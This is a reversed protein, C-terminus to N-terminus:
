QTGETAIPSVSTYVDKLVENTSKTLNKSSSAKIEVFSDKSFEMMIEETIGNESKWSDFVSVDHQMIAAAWKLLYLSVDILADFFVRTYIKKDLEAPNNKTIINIIRDWPRKVTFYTGLFGGEAWSDLYTESKIRHLVILHDMLNRIADEHEGQYLDVGHYESKEYM